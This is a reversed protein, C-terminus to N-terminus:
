RPSVINNFESSLEDWTGEFIGVKGEITATKGPKLEKAILPLLHMCANGAFPTQYQAYDTDWLMYFLKKGNTSMVACGLYNDTQSIEHLYLNDLDPYPNEPHPHMFIWKEGPQWAKLREPTVMQYWYKGQATRELPVSDPLFDRNCWDAGSSNPLHNIGACINIRVDSLTKQSINKISIRTLVGEKLPKLWLKCEIGQDLSFVGQIEDASKQWSATYTHVKTIDELEKTYIYEPLLLRFAPFTKGPLIVEIDFNNDILKLKAKRTNNKKYLPTSEIPISVSPIHIISDGKKILANEQQAILNLHSHWNEFSYFVENFMSSEIEISPLNGQLHKGSRLNSGMLQQCEAYLLIVLFLLISIRSKM